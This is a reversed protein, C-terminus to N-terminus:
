VFRAFTLCATTCLQPSCIMGEERKVGAVGVQPSDILDQKSITDHHGLLVLPRLDFVRLHLAHAIELYDTGHPRQLGPAIYRLCKGPSMEVPVQGILANNVQTFVEFKRRLNNRCGPSRPDLRHFTRCRINGFWTAPTFCFALFCQGLTLAVAMLHHARLSVQSDALRSVSSAAMRLFITTTSSITSTFCIRLGVPSCDGGGACGWEARHAGQGDGRAGAGKGLSSTDERRGQGRSLLSVSGLLLCLRDFNLVLSFCPLESCVFLLTDQGRREGETWSEEEEEEEGEDEEEKRYRKTNNTRSAILGRGGRGAEGEVEKGCMLEKEFPLSFDRGPDWPPKPQRYCM